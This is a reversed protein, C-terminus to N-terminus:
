ARDPVKVQKAMDLFPTMNAGPRRRGNTSAPVLYNPAFTTITPKPLNLANATAVPEPAKAPEAAKAPAPKTTDGKLAELQAARKSPKKEASATAAPTPATAVAAVPAPAASNNAPANSKSDDLELYYGSKKVAKPKETSADAKKKSFIGGLFGFIGSILGSIFKILGSM